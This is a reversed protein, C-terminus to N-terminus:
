LRSALELLYVTLAAIASGIVLVTFARIPRTM